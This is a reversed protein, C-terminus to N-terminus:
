DMQSNLYNIDAQRHHYIVLTQIYKERIDFLTRQADLVDLYEFKGEEYGKQALEFAQTAAPLSIERIRVAEDYAQMMDRYSIALRAELLLWLQRGQEGTKLMDFYARGINGQNQNLIPIPISIGGMMGRRNEEGDRKYGVSFTIDPVSNAKELKWNQYASSHQYLAQVIEPQNCLDALCQEFSTPPTIEFFPFSVSEFDPHPNAWLLALRQKANGVEKKSKEVEIVATSYAVEAKNQQILAVKGAEVKKAAIHLVEQAISAQDQALKLLEQNAAVNIFSRSVRNLVLLKSVNYGVLSAYYQYAAARTRLQRKNATELLQSLFVREERNHWGRWTRNGAVNEVEYNFAPNPYLSAQKMQYRRSQAEDHAIDLTPSQTLVLYIAQDLDLIQQEASLEGNAEFKFLLFLAFLGLCITVKSATLRKKKM